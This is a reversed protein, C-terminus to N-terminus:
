LFSTVHSQLFSAITSLVDDDHMATRKKGAREDLEHFLKVLTRWNDAARADAADEGRQM